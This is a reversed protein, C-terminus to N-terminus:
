GWGGLCAHNKEIDRHQHYIAVTMTTVLTAHAQSLANAGMNLVVSVLELDDIEVAYMLPTRESWALKQQAHALISDQHLIRLVEESQGQRVAEILTSGEERRTVIM